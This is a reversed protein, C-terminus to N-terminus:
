TLYYLIVRWEALVLMILNLTLLTVVAAEAIIAHIQRLYYSGRIFYTKPSNPRKGNNKSSM